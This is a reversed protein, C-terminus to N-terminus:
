GAQMYCVLHLFGSRNWPCATSVDRYARVRRGHRTVARPISRSEQAEHQNRQANLENSAGIGASDSARGDTAHWAARTRARAVAL